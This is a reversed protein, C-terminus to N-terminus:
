VNGNQGSFSIAGMAYSSNAPDDQDYTFVGGEGWIDQCAYEIVAEQTLDASPAGFDHATLAGGRGQGLDIQAQLEADRNQRETKENVLAHYVTGEAPDVKHGIAETLAEAIVAATEPSEAFFYSLMAISAKRSVGPLETFPNPVDPQDIIVADNTHLDEAPLYDQIEKKYGTGM